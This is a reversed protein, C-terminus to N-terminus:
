LLYYCINLLLRLAHAASQIMSHYLRVRLFEQGVAGTVGVIALSPGNDTKAAQVRFALRRRGPTRGIRGHQYSPSKLAAGSGAERGCSRM